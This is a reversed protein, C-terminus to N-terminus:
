IPQFFLGKMCYLMSPAALAIDTFNCSFVQFFLGKMCYLMSPAARINFSIPKYSAYLRPM